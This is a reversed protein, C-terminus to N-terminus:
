EEFWYNGTQKNSLKHQFFLKQYPDQILRRELRKDVILDVKYLLLSAYSYPQIEHSKYVYSLDLRYQIPLIQKCLRM